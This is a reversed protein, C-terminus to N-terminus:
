VDRGSIFWIFYMAMVISFVALVTTKLINWAALSEAGIIFSDGLWGLFLPFGVIVYTVLRALFSFGSWIDGIIPIAITPPFTWGEAIETANFHGEYESTNTSPHPAIGSAPEGVTQDVGAVNLELVLGTALNLCIVFFMIESQWKM